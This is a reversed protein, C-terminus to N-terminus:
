LNRASDNSISTATHPLIPPPILPPIIPPDNECGTLSLATFAMLLMVVITGYGFIKRTNM